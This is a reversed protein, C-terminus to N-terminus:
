IRHKGEFYGAIWYLADLVSRPDARGSELRRIMDGGFVGRSEGKDSIRSIVNALNQCDQGLNRRLRKQVRDPLEALLSEMEAALAEPDAVVQPSEDPFAEILDGLLSAAVGTERLVMPLSRNGLIYSPAQRAMKFPVEHGELLYGGMWRLLDVGARPAMEGSLLAREVNQFPRNRSRSNGLKRLYEALARMNEAMRLREDDSLGGPTSILQHRLKNSHIPKGAAFTAAMDMLLATTQHVDQAFEELDRENMVQRLELAALGVPYLTPLRERLHRILKWGEAVPFRRIVRRVLDFGAQRTEDDRAMIPWVRRILKFADSAREPVMAMIVSATRIANDSNGREMHFRLMELGAKFGVSELLAPDDYLMDTLRDAIPAMAIDWEAAALAGRYAAALVIPDLKSHELGSLAEEAQASTLPTAEFADAVMKALAPRQDLVFVDRQFTELLVRMDGYQGTGLLLQLMLRWIEEDLGVLINMPTLTWVVQRILPAVRRGDDSLALPVLGALVDRDLLEYRGMLAAKEAMRLLVIPADREGLANAGKLLLGREPSTLPIDPQLYALAKQTEQPLRAGLRLDTILSGFASPGLYRAGLRFVTSALRPNNRALPLSEQLLRPILSALGLEPPAESVEVLFESARDAKKMAVWMKQSALAAEQLVQRWPAGLAPQLALWRAVLRYVAPASGELLAQKLYVLLAKGLDVDGSVLALLADASESEPEDLALTIALLHRAYDLQLDGTLTRDELLLEAVARRDVAQGTRIATDLSARRAVQALADPLPMKSIRWEVTERLAEMQDLLLAPDLTLHSVVFRAYADTPPPPTVEAQGWKYVTDEPAAQEKQVFKIQAACTACDGVSTAFTIGVRVRGPLLALLGQIFDVRATLKEPAGIVTLPAGHILASLLQGVTRPSDGTARLLHDIARLLIKRPPPAPDVVARPLLDSRPKEFLPMQEDTLDLLTALNGELARAVETPLLICQMYQGIQGLRQVQALVFPGEDNHFLGISNSDPGSVDDGGLPSLSVLELCRTYDRRRIGSTHAILRPEGIPRGDRVPPGHYLRELRYVRAEDM